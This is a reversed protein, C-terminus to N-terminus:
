YADANDINFNYLTRASGYRKFEEPKADTMGARELLDKLIEIHEPRMEKEICDAGLSKVSGRVFLRAEYISDGLADGADGLVVLNGSQAMFASMHGVNGRVVINIGKMSIGCRSSANGEIVLLGGRGTAGAYQSADGKVIVAGSMMNEAVGPGASGHVTITAKQNMGACYYGVSGHVDVNISADVGVAVAHNGKPNLVEWATQNSGDAVDHLAQNLERLPVKALDFVRAEYQTEPAPAKALNSTAM